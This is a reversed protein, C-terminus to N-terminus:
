GQYRFEPDDELVTEGRDAKRNQLIFWVKLAACCLVSGATM